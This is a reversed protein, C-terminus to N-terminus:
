NLHGNLHLSLTVAFPTPTWVGMEIGARRLVDSVWVNCTRALSFGLDTAYFRDYPGFGSQPLLVPEHGLAARLENRLADLQAQSVKIERLKPHELPLPGLPELRIVSTDGTAARWVIGPTLDSYGGINTYFARSGWGVSLWEANDHLLPVGDAAAFGFVARTEADLPLLIDYHIPGVMLVISRDSPESTIPATRGPIAAGLTAAVLYSAILGALVVFLTRVRKLM